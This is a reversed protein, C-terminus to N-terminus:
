YDDRPRKRSPPPPLIKVQGSTPPSLVMHSMGAEGAADFGDLRRQYPWGADGAPGFIALANWRAGSTFRSAYAIGNFGAGHFGAAWACSIAYDTVVSLERNAQFNVARKSTTDALKKPSSLRLEYVQMSALFAQTLKRTAMLTERGRERIATEPDIALYCTGMPEMLDFRQSGDSGFWWPTRNAATSRYLAKDTNVKTAPFRELPLSPAQIAPPQNM